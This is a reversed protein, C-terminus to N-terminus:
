KGKKKSKTAKKYAKAMPSEIVIALVGFKPKQSKKNKM